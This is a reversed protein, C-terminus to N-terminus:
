RICPPFSKNTIAAILRAQHIYIHSYSSYWMVASLLGGLFRLVFSVFIEGSLDRGEGDDEQGVRGGSM